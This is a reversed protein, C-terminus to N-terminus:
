LQIKTYFYNSNLLISIQTSSNFDLGSSKCLKSKISLEM